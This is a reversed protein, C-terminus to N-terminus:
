LAKVLKGLVANLLPRGAATTRITDDTAQLLGLEVLESIPGAPYPRGLADELRRRSIGTALRLGMLLYEIGTEESSLAPEADKVGDATEAAALWLGPLREAATPHRKGARTLRGHAGPGIKLM